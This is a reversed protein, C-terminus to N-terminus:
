TEAHRRMSKLVTVGFWSSMIAFLFMRFLGLGVAGSVGLGRKGAHTVIRNRGAGVFDIQGPSRHSAVVQAIPKLSFPFEAVLVRLASWIVALTQGPLPNITLCGAM